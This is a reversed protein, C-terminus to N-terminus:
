RFSSVSATKKQWDINWGLTGKMREFYSEKETLPV